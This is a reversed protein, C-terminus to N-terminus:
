TINMGPSISFSGSLSASTRCGASQGALSNAQLALASPETFNM